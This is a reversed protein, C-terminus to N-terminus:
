EPKVPTVPTVAPDTVSLRSFIFFIGGILSWGVIIFTNTLTIAGAVTELGATATDGGTAKAVETLIKALMYDRQGSGMPALPIAGIANGLQTAFFFFRLAVEQLRYGTALLYVTMSLCTHVLCSLALAKLLVWFQTRYLDLAKALREFITAVKEPLKRMGFDTLQRVGPLRMVQARFYVGLVVGIAGMSAVCVFAVALQIERSADHLIYDLCLLVAVVTVLCLGMLGMIRDLMITLIAETARKPAQKSVYVMKVLDGGVAGPIVLSFFVGIMMLRFVTWFPLHVEQVQLLLRWRWATLLLAGGFAVFAAVFLSPIGNGILDRFKGLTMESDNVVMWILLVAVVLGIGGRVIDLVIKPPKKM